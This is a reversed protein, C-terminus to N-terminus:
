PFVNTEDFVIILYKLISQKGNRRRRRRLQSIRKLYGFSLEKIDM